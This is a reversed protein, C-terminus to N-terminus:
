RTIGVFSNFAGCQPCVAPPQEMEIGCISENCRYRTTVREEHVPIDKDAPTTRQSIQITALFPEEGLYILDGNKIMHPVDKCDVKNLGYFTGNLSGQDELYFKNDRFEIACHRRSIVQKGNFLIKSLVHSGAADRGLVTKGSAPIHICEQNMQYVFTLGTIVGAAPIVEFCFPCESVPEDNSSIEKRCSPCVVDAM